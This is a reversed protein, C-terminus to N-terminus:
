TAGTGQSSTLFRARSFARPQHARGGPPVFPTRRPERTTDTAFGSHLSGTQFLLPYHSRTSPRWDPCTRVTRRRVGSRPPAGTETCRPRDPEFASRTRRRRLAHFDIARSSAPAPRIQVGRSNRPPLSSPVYRSGRHAERRGGASERSNCRRYLRRDALRGPLARITRDTSRGDCAVFGEIRRLPLTPRFHTM